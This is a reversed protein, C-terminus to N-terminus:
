VPAQRPSRWIAAARGGMASMTQTKPQRMPLCPTGEGMRELLQDINNIIGRLDTVQYTTIDVNSAKLRMQGSEYMDLTRAYVKRENHLHRMLDENSEIVPTGCKLVDRDDTAIERDPCRHESNLRDLLLQLDAPVCGVNACDRLALAIGSTAPPRVVRITRPVEVNM